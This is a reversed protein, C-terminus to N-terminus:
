DRATENIGSGILRTIASTPATGDVVASWDVSLMLPGAFVTLKVVDNFDDIDVRVNAREFWGHANTTFGEGYLWKTLRSLADTAMM